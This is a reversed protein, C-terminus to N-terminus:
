TMDVAIKLQGPRPAIAAGFAAEVDAVPHVHTVYSDRLEPREALYAGADLAVTGDGDAAYWRWGAHPAPGDPGPALAVGPGPHWRRLRSPTESYYTFLFDLVPHSEGRRRRERHPATWREVRADHAAARASWEQAPLLVAVAPVRGPYAPERPSGSTCRCGSSSRSRPGSWWTHRRQPFCRSM